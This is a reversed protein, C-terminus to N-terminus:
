RSEELARELLDLVGLKDAWERLYVTDLSDGQTGLIGRVDAWQVNSVEGGKRYWSLKALVTDEASAVYFGQASDSALPAWSRRALQQRDFGEPKSVFVDIKFVAEFHIANFSGRRSVARSVAPEDVYFDDRLAAVLPKIQEQSIDALVDLDATARYTGRASSAFSGVVVYEIGLEDFVSVVRTIVELPGQM